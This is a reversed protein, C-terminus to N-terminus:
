KKSQEEGDRGGLRERLGRRHDVAHLHRGPALAVAVAHRQHRSHLQARAVADDAALVRAHQHLEGLAAHHLEALVAAQAEGLHVGRFLKEPGRQLHEFAREAEGGVDGGLRALAFHAHADLLHRDADAAGVEPAARAGLALDHAQDLARDLDARRALRRDRHALRPLEVHAVLALRLGDAEDLRLLEPLPRQFGVDFGAFARQAAATANEAATCAWAQGAFGTRKM